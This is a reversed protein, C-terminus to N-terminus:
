DAMLPLLPGQYKSSWIVWYLPIGPGPHPLLYTPSCPSPFTYPVKPIANSICILFIDLLFAKIRFFFLLISITRMAGVRAGNKLLLFGLKMVLYTLCGKSCVVAQCKWGYFIGITRVGEFRTSHHPRVTVDTVHGLLAWFSIWQMAKKKMRPYKLRSYRHLTKWLRSLCSFICGTEPHCLAILLSGLNCPSVFGSHVDNAIVTNRVALVTCPVSAKRTTTSQKRFRPALM